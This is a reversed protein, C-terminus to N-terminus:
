LEIISRDNQFITNLLFREKLGCINHKFTHLGGKTNKKLVKKEHPGNKLVKNFENPYQKQKM